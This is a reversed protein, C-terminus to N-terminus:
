LMGFVLMGTVLTTYGPLTATSSTPNFELGPTYICRLPLCSLCVHQLSGHTTDAACSCQVDARSNKWRRHAAGSSAANLPFKRARLSEASPDPKGLWLWPTRVTNATSVMRSSGANGNM